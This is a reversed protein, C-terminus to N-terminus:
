KRIEKAAERILARVAESLNRFGRYASWAHLIRVEDLGLWFSQVQGGRTKRPRGRPNSM